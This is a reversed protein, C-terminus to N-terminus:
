VYNYDEWYNDSCEQEEIVERIEEYNAQEEELVNRLRQYSITGPFKVLTKDLFIDIVHRWGLEIKSANIGSIGRKIVIYVLEYPEGNIVQIDGLRLNRAEEFTLRSM